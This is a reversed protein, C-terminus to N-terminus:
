LSLRLISDFRHMFRYAFQLLRNTFSKNYQARIELLGSAGGPPPGMSKKPVMPM